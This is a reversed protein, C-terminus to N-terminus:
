MSPAASYLPVMEVLRNVDSGGVREKGPAAGVVMMNLWGVQLKRTVWPVTAVRQDAKAVMM